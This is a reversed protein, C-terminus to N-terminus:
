NLLLAMGGAGATAAERVSDRGWVEVTEQVLM